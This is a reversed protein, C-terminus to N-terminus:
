KRFLLEKEIIHKIVKLKIFPRTQEIKKSLECSTRNQFLVNCFTFLSGRNAFCSRTRYTLEVKWITINKWYRSFLLLLALKLSGLIKFNHFLLNTKQGQLIRKSKSTLEHFLIKIKKAMFM